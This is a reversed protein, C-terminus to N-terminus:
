LIPLNRLLGGAIGVVLALATYSVLCRLHPSRESWWLCIPEVRSRM